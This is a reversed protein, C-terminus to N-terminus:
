IIGWIVGKLSNLSHSVHLLPPAPRKPPLRQPKGPRVDLGPSCPHALKKPDSLPPAHPPSELGLKPTQKGEFM